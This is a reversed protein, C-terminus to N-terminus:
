LICTLHAFICAISTLNEWSKILAGFDNFDTLKQCYISFYFPPRKKPCLTSQFDANHLHDTFCLIRWIKVYFPVDGVLWKQVSLIPLGIFAKCSQRQCNERLSIKYCVKKLRLAIKCSFRGNQTKLWNPSKRAVYLSWRLSMPFRPASKRNTNISSKEGPTVASTSRAFPEFDAINQEFPLRNIWIERLLPRGM